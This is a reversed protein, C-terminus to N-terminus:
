KKGPIKKPKSREVLVPSESKVPPGVPEEPEDDFVFGGTLKNLLKLNEEIVNYESFDKRMKYEIVEVTSVHTKILNNFVIGVNEVRYIQYKRPNCKVIHTGVSGMDHSDFKGGVTDLYRLVMPSISSSDDCNDKITINNEPSKITLFYM